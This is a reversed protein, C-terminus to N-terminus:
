QKQQKDILLSDTQIAKKQVIRCCDKNEYCFGVICVNLIMSMIKAAIITSKTTIAANRGELVLRLLLM